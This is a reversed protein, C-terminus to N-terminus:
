NIVILTFVHRSDDWTTAYKKKFVPKDISLNMM